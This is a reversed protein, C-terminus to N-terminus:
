ILLALLGQVFGFVIAVAAYSFFLNLNLSGISLATISFSPVLYAALWFFLMNVLVGFLGLTLFNIPAGLIKLVPRAVLSLITLVLAVLLLTPLHQWFAAFTFDGGIPYGFSVNPLLWDTIFLIVSMVLYNRVLKGLM